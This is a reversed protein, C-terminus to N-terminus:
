ILENPPMIKHNIDRIILRNNSKGKIDIGLLLYLIVLVLGLLILHRNSDLIFPFFFNVISVLAIFMLIALAKKHSTKVKESGKGLFDLISLM